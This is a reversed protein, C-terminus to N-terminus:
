CRPVSVVVIAKEIMIQQTGHNIIRLTLFFLEWGFTIRGLLQQMESHNELAKDKHLEKILYICSLQEAFHIWEAVKEVVTEEDADSEQGESDL